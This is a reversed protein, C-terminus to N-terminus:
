AALPHRQPQELDAAALQQRASLFAFTGLTALQELMMVLAALDQDGVPSLGLPRGATDTYSPYLPRYSLVLTNALVGSAALLALAYAFRRWGPLTGRRAPDLLVTWVLLGVLMFTVHEFAHLPESELTRDYVAPVHWAGFVAAWAVFATTPRTARALARHLHLRRAIRVAAAPVLQVVLPGRVALVLLLPALDGILMHQLMHAALMTDAWRDLALLAGLTIAAALCALALRSWPALDARGRAHLRLVGRAPLAVMSSALALISLTQM